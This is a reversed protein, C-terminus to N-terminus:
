LQIVYDRGYEQNNELFPAADKVLEGDSFLLCLPSFNFRFATWAWTNTLLDGPQPDGIDQKKMKFTIINSEFDYTVEAPQSDAASRRDLGVHCSIGQGNFRIHSGVCYAVDNCAWRVTYIADQPVIRLDQLKLDAYLFDPEDANEYFWASDIDVFDFSDMQLLMLAIRTRLRDPYIALAGFQDNLADTIEPDNEDGALVNIPLIPITAILLMVVITAIVKKRM